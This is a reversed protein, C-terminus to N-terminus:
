KYASHLSLDPYPLEKDPNHEPMGAMLLCGRVALEPNLYMNWGTMTFEDEHYSVENRGSFRARKFWKYAEKNDTLIMGGKGLKLIKNPGSFSLCQYSGPRYMNSTFRLASDWIHTYGLMYEGKLTTGQVPYLDVKNGSNIIACPVSMYTRAPVSISRGEIKLYKLCLFLGNSCCDLAIAYPAGTYKAVMKEFQDTIQYVGEAMTNSNYHIM